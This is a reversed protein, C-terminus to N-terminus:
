FDALFVARISFILNHWNRERWWNAGSIREISCIPKDTRMWLLLSCTVCATNGNFLQCKFHWESVFPNTFTLLLMLFFITNSLNINIEITDAWQLWKLTERRSLLVSLSQYKLCDKWGQGVSVNNLFNDFSSVQSPTVGAAIGLTRHLPFCSKLFQKRSAHNLCKLYSWLTTLNLLWFRNFFFQHLLKWFECSTKM